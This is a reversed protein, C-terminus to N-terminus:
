VLEIVLVYGCWVEETSFGCRHEEIPTSIFVLLFQVETIRCVGDDFRSGLERWSNTLTEGLKLKGRWSPIARPGVAWWVVQLSVVTPPLASLGGSLSCPVAVPLGRYQWANWLHVTILSIPDFLKPFLSSCSLVGARGRWREEEEQIDANLNM